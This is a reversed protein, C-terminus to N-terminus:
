SKAAATKRPVPLPVPPPLRRNIFVQQGIQVVSSTLWYLVMGSALRYFMFAFILPMMMMMRQQSPDVSPQPTLKTSFYSAITMLIVLVPIHLGFVVLRDPASLDTVWLIWPAHRLEIAVNLVAYFAYLVPLQLLMPLCSGLPNIGHESYVKMIEENM